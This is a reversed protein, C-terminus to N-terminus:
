ATSYSLQPESTTTHFIRHQAIDDQYLRIVEQLSFAGDYICESPTICITGTESFVVPPIEIQLRWFERQVNRRWFLKWYYTRQIYSLKVRHHTEQFCTKGPVIWTMNTTNIIRQTINPRDQYFWWTFVFKKGPIPEKYTLVLRNWYILCQRLNITFGWLRARHFIPQAQACSWVLSIRWQCLFPVSICVVLKRQARYSRRVCVGLPINRSLGRYSITIRQLTAHHHLITHMVYSTDTLGFVWVGNRRYCRWGLPHLIITFFYTVISRWIHLLVAIKGKM